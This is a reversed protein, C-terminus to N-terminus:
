SAPASCSDPRPSWGTAGSSWPRGAAHAREGCFRVTMGAMAVIESVVGVSRRREALATGQEIHLEVFAGPLTAPGTGPAPLGLAALAAGITTGGADRIDLEGDALQGCLARSGFFGQGFRWGEEDRFAIV